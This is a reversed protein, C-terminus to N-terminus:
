ELREESIKIKTGATDATGDFVELKGEISSFSKSSVTPVPSVFDSVECKWRIGTVVSIPNESNETRKRDKELGENILMPLVERQWTLTRHGKKRLYANLHDMFDGTGIYGEIDKVCREKLFSNIPNSKEEYKRRREDITGENHFERKDLLKKILKLSKKALNNYEQEPIDALIDKKESFKNPFDIILWRRYYGETKDTTAPITNTSILIKAYNYDDFPNKNKFEYGILDQGCLKKLLSTKKIMGFNTEGMLCVLKKFLKASEFRNDLLTDLETATKNSDGVFRQVLELFKSKGNMGTGNFCFIRHLPYNPLTCYALIEYLTQIYEEGVWDKFIKDMIPTEETKGIEWPIPNVSFYKKSVQFLKNNEIDYFTDKFQVWTKPIDQPKKERGVLMLANKIQTLKGPKTVDDNVYKRLENILDIEDKIIWAKKETDWLWWLKASDYFYPQIDWFEEAMDLYTKTFVTTAQKLKFEKDKQKIEKAINEAEERTVM